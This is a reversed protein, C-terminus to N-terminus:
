TGGLIRDWAWKYVVSLTQTNVKSQSQNMLVTFDQGNVDLPSSFGFGFSQIKGNSTNLGFTSTKYVVYSGTVYPIMQVTLGTYSGSPSTRDIASGFNALSSSNASTFFTLFVINSPDLITGDKPSTIGDGVATGSTNITSVMFKQISETAYTNTATGNPWGSVSATIYRPIEPTFTVQLDYIVRLQFSSSIAIPVPLLVRSFTQTNATLVPSTGLETYLVNSSESTFDYTRRYTRVNPKGNSGTSDTSGCNGVGTLYTTTRKKEAQLGTQSTKWITFSQSNDAGVGYSTDVSATLGGANDVGTVNSKSLNNYVIVDGVQLSHSYYLINASSTVSSSFNQLGAGMPWLTVMNGSQTIVSLGGTIFNMRSGTGAICYNTVYGYSNLAILDMGWNLILNKNWGYDAVVEGTASDVVMAKYSGVMAGNIGSKKNDNM